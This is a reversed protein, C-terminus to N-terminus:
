KLCLVHRNYLDTYIDIMFLINAIALISYKNERIDYHLMLCFLEKYTKNHFPKPFAYRVYRPNSSNECEAFEVNRFQYLLQLGAELALNENYIGKKAHIDYKYRIPQSKAVALIFCATIMYKDLNVGSLQAYNDISENILTIYENLITYKLTRDFETRGRNKEVIKIAVKSILDTWISDWRL